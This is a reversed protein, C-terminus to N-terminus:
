QEANVRDLDASRGRRVKSRQSPVRANEPPGNWISGLVLIAPKRRESHGGDRGHGRLPSRNEVDHSLFRGYSESRSMLGLIGAVERCAPQRLMYSQILEACTAFCLPATPAARRGGM